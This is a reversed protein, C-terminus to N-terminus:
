KTINKTNPEAFCPILWGQPYSFLRTTSDSTATTKNFHTDAQLGFM